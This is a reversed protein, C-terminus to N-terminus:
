LQEYIACLRSPKFIKAQFMFNPPINIITFKPDDAYKEFEAPMGRRATVSWPMPQFLHGSFKVATGEPLQCQGVVQKCFTESSLLQRLATDAEAQLQFSADYSEVAKLGMRTVIRQGRPCCPVLPKCRRQITCSSVTRSPTLFSQRVSRPSCRQAHYTSPLPGLHLMSVGVM